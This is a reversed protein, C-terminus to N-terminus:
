FDFQASIKLFRAQLIETPAQWIAPGGAPNPVFRNNQTLVTAANFL